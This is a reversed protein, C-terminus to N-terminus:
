LNEQFLNDNSFCHLSTINMILSGPEVNKWDTNKSSYKLINLVFLLLRATLYVDDRFHRVFDCARIPYVIDLQNNRCIFHYGLTCPVREGKQAATLDEPFFIPLYAQRTMKDNKLVQCLTMLDGYDHYIGSHPKIKKDIIEKGTIHGGNGHGAYAPWYREAYSHNFKVDTHEGASSPYRWEKYTTGPNIPQGSVRETEFHKDAWPQFPKVECNLKEVSNPIDYVVREHLLELMELANSNASTGQWYKMQVVNAEALRNRLDQHIKQFSIM